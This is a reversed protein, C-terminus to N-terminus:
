RSVGPVNTVAITRGSAIVISPLLREIAHLISGDAPLPEQPYDDWSLKLNFLAELASVRSWFMSGIPFNIEEPLAPLNLRRGLDDAYSRNKGWSLVHPDDPFVMGIREDQTMANLIIDAMPAKGGLLNEL